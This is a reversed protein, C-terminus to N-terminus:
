ANEEVEEDEITLEIEPLKIESIELHGGAQGPQGFKLAADELAISGIVVMMLGVIATVLMEADIAGQAYAFVAGILGIVALWFKRSVALGKFVGIFDGM